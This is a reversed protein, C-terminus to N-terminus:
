SVLTTPDPENEAESLLAIDSPSTSTTAVPGTRRPNTTRPAAISVVGTVVVSPAVIVSVAVPEVRTPLVVPKGDDPVYMTWIPPSYARADVTSPVCMFKDVLPASASIM